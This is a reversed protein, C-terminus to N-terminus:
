VGSATPTQAAHSAGEGNRTGARGSAHTRPRAVDNLPEAPEKVVPAACGACALALLAAVIWAGGFPPKRIATM